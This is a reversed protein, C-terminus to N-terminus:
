RQKGAQHCCLLFLIKTRVKELCPFYLSNKLLVSIKSICRAPLMTQSSIYFTINIGTFKEFFFNLRAESSM